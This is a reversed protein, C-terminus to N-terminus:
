ELVGGKRPFTAETVSPQTGRSRWRERERDTGKHFTREEQATNSKIRKWPEKTKKKKKLERKRM